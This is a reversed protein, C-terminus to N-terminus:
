APCEIRVGDPSVTMVVGHARWVEQPPAEVHLAAGSAALAPRGDVRQVVCRVAAGSADMVCAVAARVVDAPASTELSEDGSRELVVSGGDRAALAGYVFALRESEAWLDVGAPERRALRLLADILAAVRETEASASEAFAMVSAASAGSQGALQRVVTLGLLAGNLPNRLEHGLRDVLDRLTRLWQLEAAARASAETM